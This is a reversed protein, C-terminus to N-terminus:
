KRSRLTYWKIKEEQRIRLAKMRQYDNKIRQLLVVIFVLVGNGIISLFEYNVIWGSFSLSTTGSAGMYLFVLLDKVFITAICLIISELISDGMHRSWLQLLLAIFLYVCAHLLFTDSIFLDVLLGYLFATLCRDLLAFERIVLVLACFGLSPLFILDNILYSAPFLVGIGLDILTCIGFFLWNMM